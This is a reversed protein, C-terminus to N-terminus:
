FPKKVKVKFEWTISTDADLAPTNWRFVDEDPYYLGDPSASEALPEVHPDPSDTILRINEMDVGSDNFFTYRYTITEGVAAKTKGAPVTDLKGTLPFLVPV